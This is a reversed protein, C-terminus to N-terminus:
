GPRPSRFTTAVRGSWENEDDYAGFDDRRRAVGARVRWQSRDTERQGNRRTIPDAEDDYSTLEREADDRRTPPLEQDSEERGPSPAPRTPRDQSQESAM